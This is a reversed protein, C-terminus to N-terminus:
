RPSPAQEPTEWDVIIPDRMCLNLDEVVLLITHEAVLENPDMDAVAHTGM